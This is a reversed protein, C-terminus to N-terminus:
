SICIINTQRLSHSAPSYLQTHVPSPHRAKGYYMPLSFPLWWFFLSPPGTCFVGAGAVKHQEPKDTDSYLGSFMMEAGSTLEVKNGSGSHSLPGEMTVAAGASLVDHLLAVCVPFQFCVVMDNESVKPPFHFM